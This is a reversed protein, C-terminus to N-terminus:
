PRRRIRIDRLNTFEVDFERQMRAAKVAIMYSRLVEEGERGRPIVASDTSHGGGSGKLDLARAALCVDADFTCGQDSFLDVARLALVAEYDFRGGVEILLLSADLTLL